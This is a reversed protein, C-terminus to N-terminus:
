PLSSQRCQTAADYGSLAIRGSANLREPPRGQTKLAKWFFLKAATVDRRASLKFDVTKGQRDVARYVYTWVGLIRIYTEDLRILSKEM